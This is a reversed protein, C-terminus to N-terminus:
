HWPRAMKKLLLRWAQQERPGLVKARLINQPIGDRTKQLGNGCLLAISNADETLGWYDEVKGKGIITSYGTGVPDIFVLDTLDLLAYNNNVLPYPAGGDDSKADSDVKTIIPGFVGMHLWVSASGPGGNFIFTVPRTTQDVGEAIYAVSWISAAPEDKSNKLHMEGATAKYKIIKGGFTGQHLTVFSKPEPVPKPEEKKEEQGYASFIIIILFALLTSISKTAAM